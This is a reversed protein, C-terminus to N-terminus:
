MDIRILEKIVVRVTTKKAYTIQETALIRATSGSMQGRNFM